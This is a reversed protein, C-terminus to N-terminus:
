NSQERTKRRFNYLVSSNPKLSKIKEDLNLTNM